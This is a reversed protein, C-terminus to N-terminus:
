IIIKKKKFCVEESKQLYKSNLAEVFGDSEQLTHNKGEIM